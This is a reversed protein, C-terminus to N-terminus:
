RRWRAACSTRSSRSSTPGSRRSAARAGRGTAARGRLRPHEARRTAVLRGLLRRARGRREGFADPETARSVSCGSRAPASCLAAGGARQAARPCSSSTRPTDRENSTAACSSRDTSCASSCRARSRRRQERAPLGRERGRGATAMTTAHRGRRPRDGDARVPRPRAARPHVRRVGRRARAVLRARARLPEGGRAVDVRRGLEDRLREAEAAREEARSREADLADRLRGIVLGALM